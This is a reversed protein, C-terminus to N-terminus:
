PEFDEKDAFRYGSGRVTQIYVPAEPVDEIKQRLYRIHVDVTRTDGYFDIDWVRDLLTDRSIVQGAHEMLQCLLEFEKHSLEILQGRKKVKHSATDLTLDGIRLVKAAPSKMYEERRLLARVRAVLEKLGFPKTIYDDAGFELGVVKDVEDGRATLMIIPLHRTAPNERLATCVAIGDPPPMMWDLIVADPMKQQVAYLLSNGDSFDATEFGSEKLGLSVLRRINPEDDVLYILSM